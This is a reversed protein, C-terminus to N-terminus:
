KGGLLKLFASENLGIRHTKVPQDSFSSAHSEEYETAARELGQFLMESPPRGAEVAIPGVEALLDPDHVLARISAATSRVNAQIQARGEAVELELRAIKLKTVAAPPFVRGDGTVLDEDEFAM